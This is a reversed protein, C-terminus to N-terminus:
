EASPVLLEPPVWMKLIFVTATQNSLQTQSKQLEMSLLGGAEETWSVELCSCQLPNGNGEGPSRGLGPISGAAGTDTPPNKIASGGPFRLFKTEALVSFMLRDTFNNRKKRNVRFSLSRTQGIRRKNRSRTCLLDKILITSHILSHIPSVSSLM